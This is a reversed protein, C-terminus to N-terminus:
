TVHRDIWRALPAVSRLRDVAWDLLRPSNVLEDKPTIAVALGKRKLLEARPHDQPYPPPVRKLSEMSELIWGEALLGDVISQVEAGHKPHDLAQRYRGLVEPSMHWAGFAVYEGELGFSVYLGPMAHPDVGEAAPRIPLDAAVFTKYPTKDRAFRTDRQIRFYHPTVESLGPYTDALRTQLEAVFEELPQRWLRVFDDQHAKFWTRSQEAQLELFFQMGGQPFGRFREAM